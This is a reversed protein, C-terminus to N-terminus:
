RLGLGCEEAVRRIEEIAAERGQKHPPDFVFDTAGAAAFEAIGEATAHFGLGPKAVIRLSASDRGAREALENLEAVGARLAAAEREAAVWGDGLEAVCRRAARTYGGWLIPIRGGPPLPRMQGGDFDGGSWLRRMLDVADKTRALRDDFSARLLRFEEAMWGVGIGLTFRGGALYALTAAQKAVVVENRQPLILIGTALELRPCAGALWSLTTLPELWVHDPPFPFEGTPTGHYKPAIRDPIIVHDSAWATAYGLREALTAAELVREPTAVDGDIPLRIGVPIPSRV